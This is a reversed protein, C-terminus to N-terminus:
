VASRLSTRKLYVKKVFLFSKEKRYEKYAKSLSKKDKFTIKYWGEEGYKEKLKQNFRSSFYQPSSKEVVAGYQQNLANIKLSTGDIGIFGIAPNFTVGKNLKVVLFFSRQLNAKKSKLEGAAGDGLVFPFSFLISVAAIVLIIWIGGRKKM